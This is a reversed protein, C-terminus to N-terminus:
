PGTCPVVLEDGIQLSRLDDVTTNNLAALEELEIGHREAIRIAIDGSEVTYICNEGSPEQTPAPAPTDTPRPTASPEATAAPEATPSPEATAGLVVGEQVTGPILLQQGVELRRADAIDNAEVIAEVTTAFQGAISFLTDGARVIYISGEVEPLQEGVILPEPLTEPPTATVIESVDLVAPDDGAGACAISLVGGGLMLLLVAFLWPASRVLVELPALGARRDAPLPRRM